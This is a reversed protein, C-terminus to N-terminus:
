VASHIRFIIVVGTYEGQDGHVPAASSEIRLQSGDKARLLTPRCEDIVAEERLVRQAPSMLWNGSAEDSSQFVEELPRGAAWDDRWGTLVQAVRNMYVVRGSTDTVIVADGIRALTVQWRHVLNKLEIATGSSGASMRCIVLGSCIFVVMEEAPRVRFAFPVSSSLVQPLGTLGLLLTAVVGPGRGASYLVILLVPVFYIFSFPGLAAALIWGITGGLCAAGYRFVFSPSDIPM